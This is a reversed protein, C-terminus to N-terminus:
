LIPFYPQLFYPTLSASTLITLKSNDGTSQWTKMIKTALYLTYKMLYMGCCKLSKLTIAFTAM